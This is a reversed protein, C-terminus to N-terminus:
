EGLLLPIWLMMPPAAYILDFTPNSAVSGAQPHFAVELKGTAPEFLIIQINGDTYIDGSTNSGPGNEGDYSAIEKIEKWAGEAIYSDLLSEINPM